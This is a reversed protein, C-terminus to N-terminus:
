PNQEIYNLHDYQLQEIDDELSHIRKQLIDIHGKLRAEEVARLTISEAYALGTSELLELLEKLACYPCHIVEFGGHESHEHLLSALQRIQQLREPTM